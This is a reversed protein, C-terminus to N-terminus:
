RQAAAPPTSPAETLDPGSARTLVADPENWGHRQPLDSAQLAFRLARLAFDSDRFGFDSLFGFDSIRFPFSETGNRGDINPLRSSIAFSGMINGERHNEEIWVSSPLIMSPLIM